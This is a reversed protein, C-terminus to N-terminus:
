HLYVFKNQINWIIKYIKKAPLTPNSGVHIYFIDVTKSVTAKLWEAM